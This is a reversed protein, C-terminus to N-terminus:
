RTFITATIATPAYPGTPSWDAPGILSYAGSGATFVGNNTIVVSDFMGVHQNLSIANGLTLLYNHGNTINSVAYSRYGGGPNPGAYYADLPIVNVSAPRSNDAVGLCAQDRFTMPQGACGTVAMLMLGLIMGRM